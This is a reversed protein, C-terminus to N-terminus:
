NSKIYELYKAPLKKTSNGKKIHTPRPLDLIIVIRDENSHNFATHYKTDDFTIFKNEEINEIKGEVWIGCNDPVILGLHTRLSTNSFEPGKHIDLVVGGKLKSFTLLKINKIKECLEITKKFYIKFNTYKSYGYLPITHWDIDNNM